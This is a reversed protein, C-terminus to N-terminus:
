NKGNNDLELNSLYQKLQPRIEISSCIHTSGVLSCPVVVDKQLCSITSGKVFAKKCGDDANLRNAIKEHNM